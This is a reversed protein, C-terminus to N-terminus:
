IVNAHLSQTESIANYQTILCVSSQLVGGCEMGRGRFAIAHMHPTNVNMCTLFDSEQFKREQDGEEELLQRPFRLTGHQRSVFVLALPTEVAM